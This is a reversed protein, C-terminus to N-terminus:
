INTFISKSIGKIKEDERWNIVLM